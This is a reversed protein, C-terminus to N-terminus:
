MDACVPLTFSFTSGKGPSSEVWIRGGHTEVIAKAISLGLGVGGRRRAVGAELRHFREFVSEIHEEPIGVGQDTVSVTIENGDGSAQLLIDTGEESYAAANAVLNVIVEGIRIEDIEVPPLSHPINVEVHRDGAVTKLQERLQVVVASLVSPMKEIRAVGAELQSMEVLDEVIRTLTDALGKIAALPTRLEHSVSALLASRLRNIQELERVRSAEEAAQKRETVDTVIGLIAPEGGYEVLKTTLIADISRGDRATLTYDYPPVEEGQMHRRLNTEVTFRHEPVILSLFDFDPSCFEEKTYGMIEPCRENVYVIRGGSNAFVMNPMQEALFRFNRESEQLAEEAQKRETIDTVIAIAATVRDDQKVPAVRNLYWCIAGDRRQAQVEYTASEAHSTFIDDLSRRATDRYEPLVFEIANMGIAEDPSYGPVASRNMFLITGNRDLTM